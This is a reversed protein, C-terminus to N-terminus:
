LGGSFREFPFPLIEVVQNLLDFKKDELYVLGNKEHDHPLGNQESRWDQQHTMRRLLMLLMTCGSKPIACM